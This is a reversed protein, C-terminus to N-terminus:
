ILCGNQGEDFNCTDPAQPAALYAGGPKRGSITQGCQTAPITSSSTAATTRTKANGVDKM